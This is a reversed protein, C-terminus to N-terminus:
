ECTEKLPLVQWPMDSKSEVEQWRITEVSKTTNSFPKYNNYECTSACFKPKGIGKEGSELTWTITLVYNKFKWTGYKKHNKHESITRHLVAKGNGCLYYIDDTSAV